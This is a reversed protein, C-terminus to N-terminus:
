PVTIDSLSRTEESINNVAEGTIELVREVAYKKENNRYFSDSDIDRLMEELDAICTHIHQLRQLDAAKGKM